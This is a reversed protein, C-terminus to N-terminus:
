CAIMAPHHLNDDDKGERDHNGAKPAGPFPALIAAPTM